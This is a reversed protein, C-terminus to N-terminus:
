QRGGKRIETLVLKVDDELREVRSMLVAVKHGVTVAGILSTTLMGFMFGVVIRAWEEFPM